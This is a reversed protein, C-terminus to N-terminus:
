VSTWWHITGFHWTRATHWVNQIGDRWTQGWTRSAFWLTVYTWHTGRWTHDLVEKEADRTYKVAKQALDVNVRPWRVKHLAQGCIIPCSTSEHTAHTRTHTRTCIRTCYDCTVHVATWKVDCLYGPCKASLDWKCNPCIYEKIRVFVNILKPLLFLYMRKVQRWWPLYWHQPHPHPPSSGWNLSALRAKGRILLQDM